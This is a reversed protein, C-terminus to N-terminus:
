NSLLKFATPRRCNVANNNGGARGLM